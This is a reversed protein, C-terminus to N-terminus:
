PAEKSLVAIAKEVNGGPAPHIARLYGLAVRARAEALEARQRERNEGVRARRAEAVFRGGHTDPNDAGALVLARFTTEFEADTM